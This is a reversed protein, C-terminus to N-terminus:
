RPLPYNYGHDSKKTANILWVFGSHKKQLLFCIASIYPIYTDTSWRWWFSMHRPNNTILTKILTNPFARKELRFIPRTKTKMLMDSCYNKTIQFSILLTHNLFFINILYFQKLFTVAKTKIITKLASSCESM